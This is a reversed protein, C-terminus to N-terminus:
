RPGSPGPPAAQAPMQMPQNTLIVKGGSRAFVRVTKPDIGKLAEDVDSEELFFYVRNPGSWLRAFSEDDEFVHPADPFFSGFWLDARRGNLMHVSIGTYFNLTSGFEYDHNIVITQGAQYSQKIALAMSKSSIVPSFIVYGQFVAFLVGVMMATLALNAKLAQGRRRLIWNLATGALLSIGLVWLPARFMGLSEITLDQMHGLSLKYHGPHQTLVDGIDTGPPFPKAQALIMITILFVAVGVALMTASILKGARRERSGAASNSERELWGAILLALAPVAPLPYYEQRSSFSFFAVILLAWTGLLLNARARSDLSTRWSRIRAPIEKLAPFLFACWPIIWLLLLGYFLLLPVKGYDHPIRKNLYRMFQENWFYFWLFGKQPGSAEGPNRIAALIHWPAAVALFVLTSSFLRLKALRRLEGTILLFVFIIMVPFALGILSKTLVNLAVTLALGWCVWRSPEEQEYAILFLYITATLWVVVWVDPIMFRTFIYIGPATGMILAAYLGGEAGFARRGFLFACWMMGLVGLALPLRVQWEGVGFLKFSAAVVWYMLPAKELYRIGNVHLTVWDNTLLMERSAEAHVSDADDLLGPRSLGPVYILLWTFFIIAIVSANSLFAPSASNRRTPQSSNQDMRFRSM